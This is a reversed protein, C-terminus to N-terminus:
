ATGEHYGRHRGGVIRHKEADLVAHAYAAPGRGYDRSFGDPAVFNWMGDANKGVRYGAEQVRQVLGQWEEWGEDPPCSPVSPPVLGSPSSPERGSLVEEMEWCLATRLWWPPDEDALAAEHVEWTGDPDQRIRFRDGRIIAFLTRTASSSYTHWSDFTTGDPLCGNREVDEMTISPGSPSPIDGEADPVEDRSVHPDRVPERAMAQVEGEVGALAERVERPVVNGCALCRWQGQSYPIRNLWTMERGCDPNDCRPPILGLDAERASSGGGDRRLLAELAETPSQGVQIYPFLANLLREMEEREVRIGRGDELIEVSWRDSTPSETGTRAAPQDEERDPKTGSDPITVGDDRTDPIPPIAWQRMLDHLAAVRLELVRVRSELTKRCGEM